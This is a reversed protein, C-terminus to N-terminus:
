SSAPAAFTGVTESKAIVHGQMAKLLEERQAGPQLSLQADLAFVQFHYHHPPDGKPPRPGFYGIAGRSSQGQLAGGLDPLRPSSPMAERLDKTEPPINYLLWHVFPKPNKADPDEVMLVLAAAQSPVGDIRLPPSMKEGYDAYREPIAGDAQFASSSIKMTTMGGAGAHGGAITTEPRDLALAQPAGGPAPQQARAGTEVRTMAWAIAVGAASWRLVRGIM